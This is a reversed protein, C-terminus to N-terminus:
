GEKTFERLDEDYAELTLVTNTFKIKHTHKLDPYPPNAYHMVIEDGILQYTGWIKLARPQDVPHSVWTGDGKFVLATDNSTWTGLLAAPGPPRTVAYWVVLGVLILPLIILLPHVGKKNYRNYAM